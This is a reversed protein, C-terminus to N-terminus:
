QMPPTSMQIFHDLVVLSYYGVQSPICNKFENVLEGLSKAVFPLHKIVKQLQIDLWKGLGFLVSGSVSIIPRTKLPKKHIKALLYFKNFPDVM